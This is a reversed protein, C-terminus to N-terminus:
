WLAEHEEMVGYGRLQQQQGDLWIWGEIAGYVQTFKSKLLGLNLHEKRAGEPTLQLWLQQDESEVQWPHKDLPTQYTYNVKGLLQVTTDVWVANELNQNFNDVLNIGVKRGDALQGVFSTWNWNTHRPPYGKSFDLSGQLDAKIAANGKEQFQVKTPLLLQKYTYHFPRKGGDSPCLFSLGGTQQQSQLRLEFQKGKFEFNWHDKQSYIKYAGLKWTSHLDAEFGAAFAFPVQMQDELLRQEKPLYVYCFAQGVFGADVIAFGVVLEPSYAGFFLWAKRQWRRPSSWGKSGDWANTNTSHAAAQYAGFDKAEIPTPFAKLQPRIQRSPSSFQDTM